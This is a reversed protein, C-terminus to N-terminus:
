LSCGGCVGYHACPPSVRDANAQLVEVVVGEDHRRRRATYRFRVREGALAGHILVVKEDVMAIGRGDQHLAEITVTVPDAPLRKRRRSM